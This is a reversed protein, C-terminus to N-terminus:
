RAAARSSGPTSTAAGRQRGRHGPQLEGRSRRRDPAANDPRHVAAVEDNCPRHDDHPQDLGARRRHLERGGLVRRRVWRHRPRVRPRHRDLRRGDSCARSRRWRLRRLEPQQARRPDRECGSGVHQTRGASADRHEPRVGALLSVVLRQLHHRAGHQPDDGLRDHRRESRSHGERRIDPRQSRLGGVGPQGSLHQVGLRGRLLLRARVRGQDADDDVWQNYAAQDAAAFGDGLVAINRKTGPPGARRLVTMSDAM